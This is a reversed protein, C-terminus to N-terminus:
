GGPRRLREHRASSAATADPTESRASARPADPEADSKPWARRRRAVTTVRWAIVAVIAVAPLIGIGSWGSTAIRAAPLAILAVLLLVAGVRAPLGGRGARLWRILLFM